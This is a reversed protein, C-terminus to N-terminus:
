LDAPAGLHKHACWAQDSIHTIKGKVASNQGLRDRETGSGGDLFHFLLVHM